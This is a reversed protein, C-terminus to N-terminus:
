AAGEQRAPWAVDEREAVIFCVQDTRQGLGLALMHFPVQSLQEHFYNVAVQTGTYRLEEVLGESNLRVEWGEDPPLSEVKCPLVIGQLALRTPSVVSPAESGGRKAESGVGRSPPKKEQLLLRIIVQLFPPSHRLVDQQKRTQGSGWDGSLRRFIM